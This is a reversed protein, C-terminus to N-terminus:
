SLYAQQLRAPDSRLEAAPAEFVIRGRNLLFCHDVLALAQAANQEILVMTVRQERIRHLKGFLEGVMRPSLGLSPEDLILVKPDSMLGRGVAVMQQEGGSLTGAAQKLRNGIWPFLDIVRALGDEIPASRDKRGLAGILLNERVSLGPFLARGEPVHSVGLRAIADATRGRLAQGFLTVDGSQPKLLGSITRATTTKGAGNAGLLAVCQGAGVSLSLQDLVSIDGYGCVVSRLVVAPTGSERHM